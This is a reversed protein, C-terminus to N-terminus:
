RERETHSGQKKRSERVTANTKRNAKAHDRNKQRSKTTGTGREPTHDSPKGIKLQQGGAKCM